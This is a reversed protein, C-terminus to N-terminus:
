ALKELSEVEESIREVLRNLDEVRSDLSTLLGGNENQAQSQQKDSEAGGDGFLRGNLQSVRQLNEELDNSLRVLKEDLGVLLKSAPTNQPMQAVRAVSPDVYEITM